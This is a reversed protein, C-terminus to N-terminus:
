DLEIEFAKKNLHKYLNTKFIGFNEEERIEPLLRNWEQVTRFFFSSKYKLNTKSLTCKLSLESNKSERPKQLNITQKVGGYYEPPKIVTRLRKREDDSYKIYYVPLEICSKKYFIQHFLLLDSYIFRYKLPMLDLDKLRNLYEVDNYSHNLESLIWKVARKQIREIKNIATDSTPRWVQVCHEFLSRVIGLYFSRKQNPCNLFHLARKTLGLRSSSKSYIYDIQADWSM